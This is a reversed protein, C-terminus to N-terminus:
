PFLGRLKVAEAVKSIACMYASTRMDVGHKLHTELVDTFAKSMKRKLRENVEEETWFYGNIDQVWEFYSVTVGGSNALIDPVVMIKNKHLYEDAEPTTPGNAGETILKAKINKVNKGTIQNELAAPILIDVDQELVEMGDIPKADPYGKILGKNKAQYELLKKVDIGKPNVLGGSVDSVATIKVGNEQLFLAAYSGVNGFGQVAGTSKKLDMKLHKAADVACFVVGRGTAATRGLSGGVRIPKGTVVGPINRGRFMSFTDMIWAMMQSTTYVDPAPIDLDPGLIPMIETTYRRTLRELEGMSLKTPDVIVGGKAGGYPLDATACKWTMWCALAKVEDMSVNPHYRIGGKTPGLADNYQCRFGTYVEVSGDDKKVPVSVTMVRRPYRMYERVWQDLDLKAAAKDYQRQAMEFPNFKEEAM